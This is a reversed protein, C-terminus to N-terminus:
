HTLGKGGRSRVLIITLNSQINYNIIVIKIWLCFILFKFLSVIILISSPCRHSPLYSPIKNLVIIHQSHHNIISSVANCDQLYIYLKAIRLCEYEFWMLNKLTICTKDQIFTLANVLNKKEIELLTKMCKMHVGWPTFCKGSFWTNMIISNFPFTWRFEMSEVHVGHLTKISDILLRHPTWLSDMLLGYLTWSSDM